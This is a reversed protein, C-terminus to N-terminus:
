LLLFPTHIYSASQRLASVEQLTVISIATCDSYTNFTGPIPLVYKHTAKSPSVKLGFEGQNIFAFNIGFEM